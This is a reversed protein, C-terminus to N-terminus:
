ETVVCQGRGQMAFHAICANVFQKVSRRPRSKDYGIALTLPPLADSIPREVLEAGCYSQSTLPRMNLVACGRGAAVLSRIMETSNAYAVVSAQRVDSHLLSEYYAAAAPRNLVILPERMIQAMSVSRHEALPHAAPLLCYPPAAILTDFEIAPHVDEAVFLIVDYDGKLLGAQAQDNDCEELKLTASSDDPLFTSLIQPLFAPAIPAYYGIRLTGSLSQKLDAGEILLSRYEDLLRECKRAVERGSANAAIGRARQRSVLTLDFEAEVQDIAISVASAAINLESAARTISGLRIATTFYTMAKLTLAM